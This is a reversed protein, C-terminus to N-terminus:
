DNDVCFKFFDIRHCCNKKLVGHKKNRKKKEMETRKWHIRSVVFSVDDIHQNYIYYFFHQKPRFSIVTHTNKEVSSLFFDHFSFNYGVSHVISGHFILFYRLM